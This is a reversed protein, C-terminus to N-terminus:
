FHETTHIDLSLWSNGDMEDGSGLIAEKKKWYEHPVFGPLPGSFDNIFIWGVLGSPPSGKKALLL